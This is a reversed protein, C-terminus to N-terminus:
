KNERNDIEKLLMNVGDQIAKKDLYYDSNNFELEIEENSYGSIIKLLYEFNLYVIM